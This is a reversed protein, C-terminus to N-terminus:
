KPELVFRVSNTFLDEDSYQSLEARIEQTMFQRGLNPEIIENELIRFYKEFLEAYDKRHLRNLYTNSSFRDKRLHEWPETKRNTPENITHPYWELHHGGCIGTFIMPRIVALGKPRLANAMKGAIVTLDEKPIHEFVDDSYISNLPQLGTWFNPNKANDVILRDAPIVFPHGKRKLESGLQRWQNKDTICYRVLSKVARETGNKRIVGVLSKMSPQLLPKDLDVGWVDVGSNYLWVLRFPRAGFGIELVKSESLSPRGYRSLIASYEAMSKDFDAFLQARNRQLHMLALVAGQRIKEALSVARLSSSSKL